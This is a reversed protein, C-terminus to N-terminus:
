LDGGTMCRGDPRPCWCTLSVVPVGLAKALRRRVEISQGNRKGTEYERLNAPTMRAERAVDSKSWGQARLTGLAHALVALNVHPTPNM